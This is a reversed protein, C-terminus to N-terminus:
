REWGSMCLGAAAATVRIVEPDQIRRVAMVYDFLSRKPGQLAELQRLQSITLKDVMHEAMCASVPESLGAGVLASKVRGRAIGQVCGSLALTLALATLVKRM